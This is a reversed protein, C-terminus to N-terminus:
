IEAMREITSTERSSVSNPRATEKPSNMIQYDKATGYYGNTVEERRDKKIDLLLSAFDFAGSRTNSTDYLQVSRLGRRLCSIPISSSAILEDTSTSSKKDFVCLQVMAAEYNEVHFHFKDSNWIPFFGNALVVNTQFSTVTEKVGNQVDYVTVKVYPNICDGTRAENVKPLCAGSLVRISLKTPIGDGNGEQADILTSPKLVYGCGGNQRFRGDNLLLAADATQFNLAVMQTGVSWPLIPLYNSSDVRSGAPYSRSMHSQNYIAWKRRNTRRTLTRLKNESFSHMYHTPNMISLDWGKYKVGHFLTVRALAPHVRHQETKAQSANLSSNTHTLESNTTSPVTSPAGDDSNEDDYDDIDLNAPRRGKIVVMGRLDWPSPLQGALSEEKPIYLSNGLIQVLQEAMMEQYPLSCHNEFSLILPFSDPHFNLYLKIAKIIDKFLIKSTMTHGHWVVPVPGDDGSLGGDWVDLELCKCGRYLANSYMDISSNSTLQDGTLYTNHSSNIWYESIQRKMTGPNFFERVPDFADNDQGLLYAEFRNKDIRHPDKPLGEGAVQPLEFQNLRAFILQVDKLTANKEGQKAHLFKELFTKDSVTMRPKGNNMLEGFLKNWYQNIPKVVWSDRKIKHLLTCTQEFTLGHKRDRSKLGLVRSFNDYLGNLESKKMQYNIRDLLLGLENAKITNTKDKDADLWVYRLLLVENSVQRKAAQYTQVVRDLADLVQDRTINPQGYTMMLDLTWDGRFIISFCLGPNLSLNGDNTTAATTNLLSKLSDQRHKKLMEFRRNAHGRQIRHIAGIDIARVEANRKRAGTPTTVASTIDGTGSGNVTANSDVSSSRRFLWSAMGGGKNKHQTNSNNGYLPQSTVYLTFKDHSLTIYQTQTKGNAHVRVCQIGQQLASPVPIPKLCNKFASQRIVSPTSTTSGGTSNSRHHGRSTFSVPLPDASAESSARALSVPNMHSM